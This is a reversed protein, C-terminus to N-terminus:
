KAAEKSVRLILTEGSMVLFRSGHREGELNARSVNQRDELSQKAPKPMREYKM